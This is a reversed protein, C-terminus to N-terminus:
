PGKGDDSVKLVFNAGLTLPRSGAGITMNHDLLHTDNPYVLRLPMGLSDVNVITVNSVEFFYRGVLNGVEFGSSFNSGEYVNLAGEVGSQEETAGAILSNISEVGESTFVAEELYDYLNQFLTGYTTEGEGLFLARYDMFGDWISPDEVICAFSSNATLLKYQEQMIENVIHRVTFGFYPTIGAAINEGHTEFIDHGIGNVMSVLDESLYGTSVNLPEMYGVKVDLAQLSIRRATALICPIATDFGQLITWLQLNGLKELDVQLFLRALVHVDTLHLIVTMSEPKLMPEGPYDSATTVTALAEITLQPLNWESELEYPGVVQLIKDLQKRSLLSELGQIRVSELTLIHGMGSDLTVNDLPVVLVGDEDLLLLEKIQDPELNSKLHELTSNLERWDLYRYQTNNSEDDYEQELVPPMTILEDFIPPVTPLEEEMALYRQSATAMIIELTLIAVAIVSEFSSRSLTPTPPNATLYLPVAFASANTTKDATIITALTANYEPHLPCLTSVEQIMRTLDIIEWINWVGDELFESFVETITSMYNNDGVSSQLTNMLEPIFEQMNDDCSVCTVNILLSTLAAQFDQLHVPDDDGDHLLTNIWCAPNQILDLPMRLFKPADILLLFDLLYQSAPIRFSIDVVNETELPTDGRIALSLRALIEITRDFEDDIVPENNTPNTGGLFFSNTLIHPEKTPVMIQLPVVTNLNHVRFDSLKLKVDGLAYKYELTYNVIESPYIITGNIGSQTETFPEIVDANIKNDYVDSKKEYEPDSINQLFPWIHTAVVDGYPQIGSGGLAAAEQPPLFLDRFDIAKATPYRIPPYNSM